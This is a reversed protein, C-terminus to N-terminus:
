ESLVLSSDECTEAKKKKPAVHEKAFEGARVRRNFERINDPYIYVRGAINDTKLWGRKRYRWATTDTIGMTEIFRDLSIPIEAAGDTQTNDITQMM